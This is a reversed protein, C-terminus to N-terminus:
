KVMMSIIGSLHKRLIKLAKAIHNEVTNTSINLVEAIESHSLHDHRSMLFILRCKEPLKQVVKNIIKELEEQMLLSEPTDLDTEDIVIKEKYRREMRTRRISNLATNKVSAYLYTKINGASDINSRKQWINLFVDQVINEAIGLDYVYRNAFLILSQCYQRYLLEFAEIDGQRIKEIDIDVPHGRQFEM